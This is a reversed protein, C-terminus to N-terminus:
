NDSEEAITMMIKNLMKQKKDSFTFMLLINKQQTTEIRDILSIIEKKVLEEGGIRKLADLLAKCKSVSFARGVSKAGELDGERVRRAKLRLESIRGPASLGAAKAWLTDNVRLRKAVTDLVEFVTINLVSNKM